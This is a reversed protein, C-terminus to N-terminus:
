SYIHQLMVEELKFTRLQDSTISTPEVGVVKIPSLQFIM